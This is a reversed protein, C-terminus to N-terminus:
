ILGSEEGKREFWHAAKDFRSKIIVSLVFAILPYIILKLVAVTFNPWYMGLMVERLADICYTLPLYANAVGFFSAMIQIPYVGGTGSIQLVLVVIALAKGINGFVSVLSYVIVTCVMSALIMTLIFLLPNTVEVGVMFCGAAIVLGQLIGVSLYLVMRGFYMEIPNYLQKKIYRTKIIIGSMIAGIWLALSIYFPAVSSGYNDVPYVNTKKIGVPSYFYNNVGSSNVASLQTLPTQVPLSSGVTELQVMANSDVTQVIENNIKTQIEKSASISMREGVPSIKENVIFELNTTKPNQTSISLVNKTFNEPIIIAAYYKGSKVGDRADTENTFTWNYDNNDQLRNVLSDGFNHSVGNYSANEDLNVIAFDLNGTKGYPDWCAQVNLIAYLSPLIIIALLVIVIVPNKFSNKVDKKIIEFVNKLM